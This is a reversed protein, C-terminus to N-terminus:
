VSNPISRMVASDVATNNSLVVASDVVFREVLVRDSRVVSTLTKWVFCQMSKWHRKVLLAALPLLPSNEGETQDQNDM